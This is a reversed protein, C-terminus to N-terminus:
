EGKVGLAKKDQQKFYFSRHDLSKHYNRSYVDAWVKNMEARCRSWEELKQRLRSLVVPLASAANRRVLENIDLGHDGYIREICRLNIAPPPPPLSPPLSSLLHRPSLAPM